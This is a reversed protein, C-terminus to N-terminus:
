ADAALVSEAIQAAMQFLDDLGQTDILRMVAACESRVAGALTDVELESYNPLRAAVLAPTPIVTIPRASKPLLTRYHDYTGQSRAFASQELCELIM